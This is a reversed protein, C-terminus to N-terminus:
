GDVGIAVNASRRLEDSFNSSTASRLVHVGFQADVTAGAHLFIQHPQDEVRPESTKMCPKRIGYFPPTRAALDNNTLDRIADPLWGDFFYAFPVNL